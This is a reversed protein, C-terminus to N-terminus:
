DDRFFVYLVKHYFRNVLNTEKDGCIKQGKLIDGDELCM